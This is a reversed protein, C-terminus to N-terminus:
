CNVGFVPSVDHTVLGCILGFGVLGFVVGLGLAVDLGLVGGVVDAVGGPVFVFVADFV